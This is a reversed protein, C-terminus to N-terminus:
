KESIKFASQKLNIISFDTTVSNKKIKKTTYYNNTGDLILTKIKLHNLNKEFDKIKNKRILYYDVELTSSRKAQKTNGILIKKDFAQIFNNKIMLFDGTFDELSDMNHYIMEPRGLVNLHNHFHFTMKDQNNFLTATAIFHCTDGQTIAIASEGAVSLFLIEKQELHAIKKQIGFFLLLIFIPFGIWISKKNRNTLGWVITIILGYILYVEFISIVIGHIQPYPLIEMKSVTYNLLNTILSLINGIVIALPDIWSFLMFLFTLYLIITAAPIVFLNSILFYTPFQHFYLIGLPFTAIQAALSVATLAWLKDMIKNNFFFLQYIKPQLYIIGIVALYSLQFGVKNIIFPNFLLLAFASAALTNYINTKRFFIQGLVIFSLMTVARLVSPSMGTLLAYGWLLILLVISRVIKTVRNRNLFFLLSNFILFVLGVHLGSVALVHMAGASAYSSFLGKDLADKNGFVLAAIVAYEDGSIGAEKLKQLLKKRSKDAINLVHWHNVKKVTKWQDSKLYVQHYTQHNNLYKKYDFEDPNKPSTLLYPTSQILIEDGIEITKVSTDKQLYILLKGSVTKWNKDNGASLVEGLTKFTKNKEILPSSIKILYYKAKTNQGFFTTYNNEFRFSTFVVGCTYAIMFLLIGSWHRFKYKRIYKIMFGIGWAFFLGILFSFLVKDISWRFEAEMAIGMAFPVLIRILPIRKLNNKM